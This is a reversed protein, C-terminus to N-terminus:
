KKLLEAARPPVKLTGQGSIAFARSSDLRALRSDHSKKPRPIGQSLDKKIM